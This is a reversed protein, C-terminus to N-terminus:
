ASVADQEVAASRADAALTAKARAVVVLASVAGLVIAGLAIAPSVTEIGLLGDISFAGPGTFALASAGGIFILPMEYGGNSGWLGNASHTWVAVGLTGVVAAAAFPTLLGVALALGALLEALGTVVAMAKGPRFGISALWGGTGAIGYGGFWGFLKQSGHAALLLGLVLRLILLGTDM